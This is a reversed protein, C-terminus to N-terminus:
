ESRELIGLLNQMGLQPKVCTALVEGLNTIGPILHMRGVRLLQVACRIQLSTPRTCPSQGPLGPHIQFRNEIGTQVRSPLGFSMCQLSTLWHISPRIPPTTQAFSVPAAGACISALSPSLYHSTSILVQENTVHRDVMYQRRFRALRRCKRCIGSLNNGINSIKPPPETIFQVPFAPTLLRRSTYLRLFHRSRSNLIPFLGSM